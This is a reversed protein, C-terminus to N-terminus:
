RHYQRRKIDDTRVFEPTQIGPIHCSGCRNNPVLNDWVNLKFQQVDDSAPPPGVYNPVSSDNGNNIDPLSETAPGGGSCASLILILLSCVSLRVASKQNFYNTPSM